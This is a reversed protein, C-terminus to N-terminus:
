QVQMPGAALNSAGQERWMKADRDLHVKAPDQGDPQQRELRAAASVRQWCAQCRSHVPSDVKNDPSSEGDVARRNKVRRCVGFEALPDRSAGGLHM